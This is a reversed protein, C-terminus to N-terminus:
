APVPMVKGFLGDYGPNINVIGKRMNIIATAVAQSSARAIDDEPVDRLIHFESGLCELLGFYMSQVRKSATGFGLISAILEVLPVLSEFPPFHDPQEAATRCALEEVRHLVGVTLKGGCQPCRGGYSRTEEPQLCIQCDRHGDLFYKGEQPFFEITGALGRGSSIASTIANYDRRVSFITAERGLKAPSHADSCSILQIGDLAPLRRNMVPDSSLGTEIARIHPTLDGFCEELSDFGSFAGFVSFHPTWAHAPIVLIEPSIALVIELLRYADLGLIPRGDASLNGIASLAVNIRRVTPFDPALLVLHVKRTRDHRRYICSIEASLLFRVEARCSPYVDPLQLASRAKLLGGDDPELKAQLEEVWGPHTFDGTGVVDIGKLQSWKWLTEPSLDRSCGRSYRSHIHLDAILM